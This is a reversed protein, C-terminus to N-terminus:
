RLAPGPGPTRAILEVAAGDAPSGGGPPPCPLTDVGLLGLLRFVVAPCSSLVLRGGRRATADAADLLSRLGRVGCFLVGDLDVVILAVDPVHTVADLLAADLVPATAVDLDGDLTLIGVGDARRFEAQLGCRGM